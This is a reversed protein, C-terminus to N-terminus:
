RNIYHCRAQSEVVGVVEGSEELVCRPCCRGFEPSVQLGVTVSVRVSQWELYSLVPQFTVRSVCKTNTQATKRGLENNKLANENFKCEFILM